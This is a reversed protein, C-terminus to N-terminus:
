HQRRRNDLQGARVPVLTIRAVGQRQAACREVVDLLVQGDLRIQSLQDTDLLVSSRINDMVLSNPSVNRSTRDVKGLDKLNLVVLGELRQPHSSPGLVDEHSIFLASLVLIGDHIDDNLLELLGVSGLRSRSVRSQLEVERVGDLGQEEAEL